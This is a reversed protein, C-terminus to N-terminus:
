EAKGRRPNRLSNCRARISAFLSANNATAVRSVTFTERGYNGEGRGERM